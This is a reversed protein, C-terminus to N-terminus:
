PCFLAALCPDPECSMALDSCVTEDGELCARLWWPPGETSVDFEACDGQNVTGVTRWGDRFPTQVDYRAIPDTPYPPFYFLMRKRGASAPFSALCLLLALALAFRDTLDAM